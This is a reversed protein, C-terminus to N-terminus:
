RNISANFEYRESDSLHLERGNGVAIPKGINTVFGQVNRVLFRNIDYKWYWHTYNADDLSALEKLRAYEATRAIKDDRDAYAWNYIDLNTLPGMNMDGAVIVKANTIGSHHNIFNALQQVQAARKKGRTSSPGSQMHTGYVDVPIGEVIIRVMIIGKSSYSDSGGRAAFIEKAVKEFPYKSLIM